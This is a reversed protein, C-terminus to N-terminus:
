VTFVISILCPPSLSAVRLIVHYRTLSVWGTSFFISRCRKMVASVLSSPSEEELIHTSTSIREIGYSIKIRTQKTRGRRRWVYRIHGVTGLDMSSTVDDVWTKRMVPFLISHTTLFRVFPSREQMGPFFFNM